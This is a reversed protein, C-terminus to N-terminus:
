RGAGWRLRLGPRGRWGRRAWARRGAGRRAGSRRVSPGGSARRRGSRRLRNGRCRGGGRRRVGPAIAVPDDLGEVVVHGVVEEDFRLHGAVEQGFFFLVEAGEAQEAEAGPVVADGLRGLGAGVFAVIADVHDGAAEEADGGGAGAAVIVLVIGDGLAVVVGEAADEGAGGVFLVREGGFLLHLAVFGVLFFDGLLLLGDVGEEFLLAFLEGVDEGVADGVEHGAGGIEVGFEEFAPAFVEGLGVFIL